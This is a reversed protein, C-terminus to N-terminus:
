EIQKRCGICDILAFTEGWFVFLQPLDKFALRINNNSLDVSVLVFIEGFAEIDLSKWSEFPYLFTRLHVFGDVNIRSSSGLFEEIVDIRFRAKGFLEFPGSIGVNNLKRLSIKIGDDQVFPFISKNAKESRPAHWLEM